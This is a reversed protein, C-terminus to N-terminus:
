LSGDSLRSTWQFRTPPGEWEAHGCKSSLACTIWAQRFVKLPEEGTQEGLVDMAGYMIREAVSKKGCKMLVNICRTVFVDGYRPDPLVPRKTVVKRRPM